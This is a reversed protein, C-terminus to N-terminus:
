SEMLRRSRFRVRFSDSGSAASYPVAHSKIDREHAASRARRSYVRPAQVQHTMLWSTAAAPRVDSGSCPRAVPRRQHIARHHCQWCAVDLSRVGNARTNGLTMPEILDNSRSAAMRRNYAQGSDDPFAAVTGFAGL